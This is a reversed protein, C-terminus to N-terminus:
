DGSSADDDLTTLKILLNAGYPQFGLRRAVALSSANAARARWRAVGHHVIADRAAAAVVVTGYGRGRATPRTVFGLDALRGDWESLHAAAIITRRERLVYVLGPDHFGAEEWEDAPMSAALRPMAERLGPPAVEVRPDVPGLLEADTGYLHLSPGRVSAVRGPGLLESWADPDTALANTGAVFAAVEDLVDTPCTVITAGPLTVVLVDRQGPRGPAVTRGGDTLREVEVGLVRALAADIRARLEAKM